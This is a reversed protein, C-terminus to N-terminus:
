DLSCLNQLEVLAKELNVPDNIAFASISRDIRKNLGTLVKGPGCEIITTIGMTVIKEIIEVWRVPSYLQKVLAEHIALPDSYIGADVNHVLPITPAKLTAQDLAQTLQGAAGKMLSCHCPVSVALQVALRAGAKNALEIARQIAGQNGAIVIQEPSNYNAPALVEGYAAQQCIEKVQSENLGIIAAMSGKDAMVKQMYYGRKAVLDVGTPFDIVGACVLATYEGLSHGAVVSPQPAGSECWIQWIAYSATLLAPQTIETQNLKEAPGTQTLQWLDYGLVQSAIAFTQKVSSYQDALEKLMGVTQSGQGPFIFALKNSNIKVM